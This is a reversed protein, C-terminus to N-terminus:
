PGVTFYMTRLPEEVLYIEVRYQGEPFSYGEGPEIFFAAVRETQLMDDRLLDNGYYWRAGVHVSRDTQLTVLCWIRPASSDFHSIDNVPAFDPTVDSTLVVDSITISGRSLNLSLSAGTIQILLCAILLCLAVVGFGIGAVILVKKKTLKDATHM